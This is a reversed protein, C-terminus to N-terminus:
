DYIHLSYLKQIELMIKDTAKLTVEDSIDPYEVNDLYFPQGINVKIHKRSRRAFLFRWLTLNESIHVSMPLIAARTMISLAAAGRKGPGLIGRESVIHGEPFMIVAGRKELIRFPTELAKDIGLKRNSKFSGLLWILLNFGPIRFFADKTMFRVPFLSPRNMVAISVLPPDLHSEHNSVLIYPRKLDKLNERGVVQFNTFIKLILWVVSM